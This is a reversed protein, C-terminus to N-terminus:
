LQFQYDLASEVMCAVQTSLEDYLAQTSHNCHLLMEFKCATIFLMSKYLYYDCLDLIAKHFDWAEGLELFKQYCEQFYTLVGEKLSQGLIKLHPCDQAEKLIDLQHIRFFRLLLSLWNEFAMQDPQGEYATPLSAKIGLKHILTTNARGAAQDKDIFAATVM